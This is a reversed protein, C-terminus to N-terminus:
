TFSNGYFEPPLADGGLASPESMWLLTRRVIAFSIGKLRELLSVGFM